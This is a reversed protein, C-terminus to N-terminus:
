TLFRLLLGHLHDNEVYGTITGEIVMKRLSSSDLPYDYVQKEGGSKM